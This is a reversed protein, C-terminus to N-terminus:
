QSGSGKREAGDSMALPMGFIKSTGHQLFLFGLIIRLVGLIRPTWVTDFSKSIKM